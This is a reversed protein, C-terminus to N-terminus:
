EAFPMAAATMPSTFAPLLPLLPFSVSEFTVTLVIELSDATLSDLVTVACRPMSPSVAEAKIPLTVLPVTSISLEPTVSSFLFLPM